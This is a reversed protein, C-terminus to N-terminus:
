NFYITIMAIDKIKLANGDITDTTLIDIPHEIWIDAISQLCDRNLQCQTQVVAEFMDSFKWYPEVTYTYEDSIELKQLVEKMKMITYQDNTAYVYISININVM